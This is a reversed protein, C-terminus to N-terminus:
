YHQHFLPVSHTDTLFNVSSVNSWSHNSFSGRMILTSSELLKSAELTDFM